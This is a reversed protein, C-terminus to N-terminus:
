PNPGSVGFVTRSPVGVRASSLRGKPASTWVRARQWRFTTNRPSSGARRIDRESVANAVTRSIAGARPRRMSTQHRPWVEFPANMSASAHRTRRPSAQCPAVNRSQLMASGPIATASASRTRRSKRAFARTAASTSTSSGDPSLGKLSRIHSADPSASRANTPM